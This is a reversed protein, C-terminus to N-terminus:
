ENKESDATQVAATEGQHPLVPLVFRWFVDSNRRMSIHDEDENELTVGFETWQREAGAPPQIRGVLVAKGNLVADTLDLSPWYEHSLQSYAKGGAAQYFGMMRMIYAVDRSAQDYPQVQQRTQLQPGQGEFLVHLGNLWSRLERRDEGIGTEWVRGPELTGIPYAWNGYVIVCEELTFPSRNVIQGRLTGDRDTLRCDLPLERIQQTWVAWVARTAWQGIPLERFVHGDENLYAGPLLMVNAPSEMGGLGHGPIGLWGLKVDSPAPNLVRDTQFRARYAAPQPSYVNTWCNGRLTGSTLDVDVCVVQRLHLIDGKRSALVIGVFGTLLILLPFTVWTWRRHKGLLGCLWYDLPGIIALYVVTLGAVWAFPVFPVGPFVELAARLQGALDTYGYHMLARSPAVNAEDELFVEENGVLWAVLRDWQPWEVLARHSVDITTTVVTGLGVARRIVLPVNGERVAILGDKLKFQHAVIPVDSRRLIVPRTAKVLSELGTTRRLTIGGVVPGPAAWSLPGGKELLPRVKPGGSFVIKGGAEVWRRLAEVIQPSDTLEQIFRADDGTCLVVARFTQYALWNQPLQGVTTVQCWHNGRRTWDRFFRGLDGPGIWLFLPVHAPVVLPVEGNGLAKGRFTTVANSGDEGKWRVELSTLTQGIQVLVEVQEDHGGRLSVNTLEYSCLNGFGDPVVVAVRGTTERSSRLTVTVPTWLGLKYVGGVGVRCAVVEVPVQVAQQGAVHNRPVSQAAEATGSPMCLLLLGLGFEVVRTLRCCIGYKTRYHWSRFRHMM